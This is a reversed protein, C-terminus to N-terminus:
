YFRVWWWWDSSCGNVFRTMVEM